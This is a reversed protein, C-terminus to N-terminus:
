RYEQQVQNVPNYLALLNDSYQSAVTGCQGVFILFNTINNHYIYM